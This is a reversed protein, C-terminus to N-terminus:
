RLIAHAKLKLDRLRVSITRQEGGSVSTFQKVSASLCRREIGAWEFFPMLRSVSPLDHDLTKIRARFREALHNRDAIAFEVEGSVLARDGNPYRVPFVTARLLPAPDLARRTDDDAGDDTTDSELLSTLTMVTNKVQEMPTDRTAQLLEDYVMQLNLTKVGVVEV